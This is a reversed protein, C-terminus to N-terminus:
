GRPSPENEEVKEPQEVPDKYLSLFYKSLMTSNNNYYFLLIFLQILMLSVWAMILNGDMKEEM